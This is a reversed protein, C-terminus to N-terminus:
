PKARGRVRTKRVVGTGILGLLGSGFLWVAAPLPIIQVDTLQVNLGSARDFIVNYSNAGNSVVVSEAFWVGNVNIGLIFNDSGNLTLTDGLSNTAIHDGNGNIPGTFEVISPVPIVILAGLYDLDSDDFMGLTGGQLDGLQFSVDGDTPAFVTAADVRAVMLLSVVGIVMYITKTIM